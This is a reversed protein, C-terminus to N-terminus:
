SLFSTTVPKLGVSLKFFLSLSNDLVDPLQSLLSLTFFTLSVHHLNRHVHCVCHFSSLFSLHQSFSISNPPIVSVCLPPCSLSHLSLENVFCDKIFMKYDVGESPDPPNASCLIGSIFNYKCRLDYFCFREAHRSPWVLASSDFLREMTTFFSSLALKLIYRTWITLCRFFTLGWRRSKEIESKRGDPKQGALWGFCDGHVVCREPTENMWLTEIDDAAVPSPRVAVPSHWHYIRFWVKKGSQFVLVM